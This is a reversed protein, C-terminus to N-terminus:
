KFWATTDLKYSLNDERYGVIKAPVGAVIALPPINKTVIAGCAVVCGRGLTVGPLITARSAIWVYDEIVVPKSVAAFTPSNYDHQETWINSYQAIDVHNGIYLFGRGDLVTGKNINCNQGIVIRQPSRIDVNRRITTSWKFQKMTIFCVLRRLPACPIWMIISIIFSITDSIIGKIYM